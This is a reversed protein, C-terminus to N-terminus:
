KHVIEYGAVMARFNNWGARIVQTVHLFFFGAFALMALFHERRAAEYGGLLWTLRGAQVPKYIALGTVLSAMGLLIAGTYAFRQAGNFKGRPAPQTKRLHLDHLTVLLAEKFSARDPVLERWEGSVALCCVYCFGNLAFPWMLFFHWGMGEALRHDLGFRLAMSDPIPFYYRDNAWYILIGSWIMLWLLPFNIWHAWRIARPHKEAILVPENQRWPGRLFNLLDLRMM